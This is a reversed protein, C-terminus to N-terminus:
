RLRVMAMLVSREAAVVCVAVVVVVFAAIMGTGSSTIAFGATAFFRLFRPAPYLGLVVIGPADLLTLALVAVCSSGAAEWSILSYVAVVVYVFFAFFLFFFSLLFLLLIAAPTM